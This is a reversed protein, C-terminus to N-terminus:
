RRPGCRWRWSRSRSPRMCGCRWRDPKDPRQPASRRIVASAGRRRRSRVGRRRKLFERHRDRGADVRQLARRRRTSRNILSDLRAILDPQLDVADAAVIRGCTDARQHDGSHRPHTGGAGVGPWPWRLWRHGRRAALRELGDLLPLNLAQSARSSVRCPAACIRRSWRRCTACRAGSFAGGWPVSRSSPRASAEAPRSCAIEPNRTCLSYESQVAAIPHVAHARRLTPRPYKPSVSPASRERASWNAWRASATRSPCRRTGAICTTCISSRPGCARRLSDECTQKLTALRGDIVRRLGSDTKVGQIGCKSALTFRHRLPGLTRGM